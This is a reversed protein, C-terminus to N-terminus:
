VITLRIMLVLFFAVFVGGMLISWAVATEGLATIGTIGDIGIIAVGAATSGGAIGMMAVAFAAGACGCSTWGSGCWAPIALVVATFGFITGGIFSAAVIKGLPHEHFILAGLCGTAMSLVQTVLPVFGPLFANSLREKFNM